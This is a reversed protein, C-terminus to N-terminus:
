LTPDRSTIFPTIYDRYIAKYIPLPKKKVGTLPTIVKSIVQLPGGQLNGNSLVEM